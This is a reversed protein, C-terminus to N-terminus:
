RPREDDTDRSTDRGQYWLRAPPKHTTPPGSIWESPGPPTRRRFKPNSAEPDELDPTPGRGWGVELPLTEGCSYPGGRGVTLQLVFSYM